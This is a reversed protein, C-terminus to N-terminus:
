AHSRAAKETSRARRRGEAEGHGGRHKDGEVLQGSWSPAPCCQWVRRPRGCAPLGEALDDRVGEFRAGVRARVELEERGCTPPPGSMARRPRGGEVRKEVMALPETRIGHAVVGAGVSSPRGLGRVARPLVGLSASSGHNWTM